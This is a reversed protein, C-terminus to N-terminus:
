VHKYHCVFVFPQLYQQQKKKKKCVNLQNTAGRAVSKFYCDDLLGMDVIGIAISVDLSLIQTPANRQFHLINSSSLLVCLEPETFMPQCFCFRLGSGLVKSFFTKKSGSVSHLIDTKVEPKCISHEVTLLLLSLVENEAIACAMCKRQFIGLTQFFRISTPQFFTYLHNAIKIIVLSTRPKM